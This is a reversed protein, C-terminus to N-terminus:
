KDSLIEEFKIEADKLSQYTFGLVGWQTSSPYMESPMIYNGGLTMGNHSKIKIVEFWERKVAVDLSKQKYIATDKVRKIQTYVFGKKIIELPLKKM